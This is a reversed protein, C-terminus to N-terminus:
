LLQQSHVQARSEGEQGAHARADVSDGDLVVVDLYSAFAAEICPLIHEEVYWHMAQCLCEVYWYLNQCSCEVFWHM